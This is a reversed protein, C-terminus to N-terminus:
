VWLEQLNEVGWFKEGMREAVTVFAETVYPDFKTGASTQIEEIAEAPTMANRFTRPSTLADFTDAVTLIRATLPIAAGGIGEPYGTGDYREHHYRVAPIEQELFEMDEMIRVGILPHQKVLALQSDNLEGPCLLVADPLAAMGIDHLTAAIRIRGVVRLPLEMQRAILVAYRRVKRAHNAMHSDRRELMEVIGEIDQLFLSKLRSDLGIFKEHLSDLPSGDKYGASLLYETQDYAQVTRDAGLAKARDLADIAQAHMQESDHILGSNLDTIGICVSVDGLKEQMSTRIREAVVDADGASTEPLLISFRNGSTRAPLDAKRCCSEIARAAEALWGTDSENDADSSDSYAEMAILSLRRNYRRAQHYFDDLVQTFLRGNALGTTKDTMSQRTAKDFASMLRRALMLPEGHLQDTFDASPQEGSELQGIRKLLRSLPGALLVQAVLVLLLALGVSLSLIILITKRAALAQHCIQMVPVDSRYYGVDKGAADRAEWAVVLKDQGQLWMVNSVTKQVDGGKPLPKNPVFTLKGGSASGIRGLMASGVKRALWIYGVTSKGDRLTRRAFLILGNQSYMLGGFAQRDSDASPPAAATIPAVKEGDKSWASVIGGTADSIWALEIGAPSLVSQAYEGFQGKRTQRKIFARGNEGQTVAKALRALEDQENRLVTRAGYETRGAQERLTSLKQSEVYPQLYRYDFLLIGSACIALLILLARTTTMKFKDM